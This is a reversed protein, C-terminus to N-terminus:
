IQNLMIIMFFIIFLFFHNTMNNINILQEYNMTMLTKDDDDNVDRYADGGHNISTLEDVMAVALCADSVEM